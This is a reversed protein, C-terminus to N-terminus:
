RGGGRFCCGIQVGIGVHPGDYTSIARGEGKGSGLLLRALVELLFSFFLMDHKCPAAAASIYLHARVGGMRDPIPIFPVFSIDQFELKTEM